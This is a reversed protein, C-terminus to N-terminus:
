YCYAAAGMVADVSPGLPLVTAVIAQTAADAAHMLHLTRTCRDSVHLQSTPEDWVALAADHINLINKCLPQPRPVSEKQIGLM